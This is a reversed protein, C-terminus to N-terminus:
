RVWVAKKGTVFFVFAVVAATNLLLFAFAVDALRSLAGPRSRFIVTTALACFAAQLTLAVRYLVGHLFLSSILVGALAFPVVLRFLKHCVFEFRVPNARTLVWPALRLLQYNGALTRVKRKFEHRSTALSDFAQARGEFVVRKGQRAVHLPLYVDDLVTAAPLSVLLGRRVAYLAGTAGMASGAAGEWERIKKEFRWYLGLGEGGNSSGQRAGLRLEGSVCGVSPDAFRAALHRLADPELMQRADTFVVVEGSAVEIGQNLAVAKGQREPLIVLRLRENRETRLIENTADASGDSVVVIEYRNSPYSLGALNRLKRALVSEENYVAMVISVEPYIEATLVPRRLWLSRLYIWLPYGFYTYAVFALSGWFVM